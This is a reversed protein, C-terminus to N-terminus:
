SVRLEGSASGNERPMLLKWSHCSPSRQHITLMKQCASRSPAGIGSRYPPQVVVPVGLSDYGQLNPLGPDPLVVALAILGAGRRLM